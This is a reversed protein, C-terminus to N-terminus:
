ANLESLETRMKKIKAALTQIDEDPQMSRWETYDRPRLKAGNWVDEQGIDIDDPWVLTGYEARVLRFFAPDSLRKWYPHDFYPMCDFVGTEGNDFSVILEHDSVPKVATIDHLQEM